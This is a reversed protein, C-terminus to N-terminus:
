KSGIVKGTKNNFYSWVAAAVALIAAGIDSAAGEPIWGKGVAYAVLTPVVVRLIGTFQDYNM